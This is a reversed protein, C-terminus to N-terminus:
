NNKNDRRYNRAERKIAPWVKLLFGSRIADIECLQQHTILFQWASYDVPSNSKGYRLGMQTAIMEFTEHLLLEYMGQEGEAIGIEISPLKGPKPCSDFRGNYTDNIFVDVNSANLYYTGVKRKMHQDKEHHERLWGQFKDDWLYLTSECFPCIGPSFYFVRKNNQNWSCGPNFYRWWCDCTWHDTMIIEEYFYLRSPCM